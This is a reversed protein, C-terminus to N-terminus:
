VVFCLLGGIVEVFVCRLLIYSSCPRGERGGVVVLGVM